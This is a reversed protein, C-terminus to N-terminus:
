FRSISTTKGDATQMTLDPAQQNLLAYTSNTTGAAQPTLAKKFDALGTHQPFRNAVNQVLSTLEDPLLAGKAKDLVFCIGAPNKSKNIFNRLVDSLSNLEKTYQQQLSRVYNTDASKQDNVAGLQQYTISLISDKQWYNKIFSYLEKTADSGSVDPYHFGSNDFDIKIDSADNVFIVAPNDKFGVIFLNQQPSSGKLKYSGDAGVKTSDLIKLDPSDYALQELYVVNSPSAKIKGSVTFSGDNSKCSAFVTIAFVIYALNKM